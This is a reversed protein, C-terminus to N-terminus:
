RIKNWNNGGDASKYLTNKETLLYVIEQNQRYFSIFLPTEGNFSQVIREWTKGGDNSRALGFKKSFSLLSQSQPAIAVASVFGDFLFQWTQGKDTSKQLGQPTAVYVISEDKTDAALQVIQFSTPFKEWTRGGDTTIHLDGKYWGYVLDPSVPSVAMTHFDVPGDLGDSIKKWIIGGDESKQFGLNGGTSPHGSSFFIKPNTPHPSFGMLDDTNRGVQYLDKENVLVLLGYHTAIYVKNADEVDVTLGHGHSISNVPILNQSTQNDTNNKDKWEPQLLFYIGVGVITTLLARVILKKTSKNM